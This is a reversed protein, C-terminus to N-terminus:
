AFDSPVMRELKFFTMRATAGSTNHVVAIGCEDLTIKQDLRAELVKVGQSKLVVYGPRDMPYYYWDVWLGNVQEKDSLDMARKLTLDKSM